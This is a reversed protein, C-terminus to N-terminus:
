RYPQGHEIMAEIATRYWSWFDGFEERNKWGDTSFDHVVYVKHKGSEKSWCAIDDNDERRAFPVLDAEQFRKALGEVRTQYMNENNFFFWPDVKLLDLEILRKLEAQEGVWSPYKVNGIM